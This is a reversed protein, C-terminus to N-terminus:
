ISRVLQRLGAKYEPETLVLNPMNTRSAPDVLEMAQYDYVIYHTKKVSGFSIPRSHQSPTDYYKLGLCTHYNILPANSILITCADADICNQSLLIFNVIIESTNRHLYEACSFHINGGRFNIGTYIYKVLGNKDVIEGVYKELHIKVYFNYGPRKVHHGHVEFEGLEYGRGTKIM